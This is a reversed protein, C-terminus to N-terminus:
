RPFQRPPRVPRPRAARSSEPRRRRRSRVGPRAKSRDRLGGPRADNTAEGCNPFSKGTGGTKPGARRASLAGAPVERAGFPGWNRCGPGVAQNVYFFPGEDETCRFTLFHIVFGLNRTISGAVRNIAAVLRASACPWPPAPAPPPPPPPAAGGPGGPGAVEVDVVVDVVVMNPM